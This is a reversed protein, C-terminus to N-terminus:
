FIGQSLQIIDPHGEIDNDEVPESPTRRYTVKTKNDRSAQVIKQVKYAAFFIIVCLIIGGIVGLVVALTNRLIKSEDSKTSHSSNNDNAADASLRKEAIDIPTVYVLKVTPAFGQTNNASVSLQYETGPSLGTVIFHPIPQSTLSALAPGDILERVELSFTQKM